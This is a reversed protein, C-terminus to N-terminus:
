INIFEFLLNKFFWFLYKDDIKILETKKGVFFDM